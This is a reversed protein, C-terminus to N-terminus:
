VEPIPGLADNRGDDRIMQNITEVLEEQDYDGEPLKDFYSMVDAPLGATIMRELIAVRNVREQGTYLGDILDRVHTTEGNETM